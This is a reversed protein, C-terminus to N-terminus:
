ASPPPRQVVQRDFGARLCAPELERWSDAVRTEVAAGAATAPRPASTHKALVAPLKGCQGACTALSRIASSAPDATKARRCCSAAKGKCCKMSCEPTSRARAYVQFWQPCLFVAAMVLAISVRVWAQWRQKM